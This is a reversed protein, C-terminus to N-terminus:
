AAHSIKVYWVESDTTTEHRFGREELVGYLPEPEFSNISICSFVL